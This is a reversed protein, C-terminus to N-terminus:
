KARLLTISGTRRKSEDGILQYQFVYFYTGSLCEEKTNFKRGNWLYDFETSKFVLEGWRNYVLLNYKTHGKILIKFKDNYGDENVTIVNPIWVNTEIQLWKCLTDACGKENRAVLCIQKTGPSDFEHVVDDLNNTIAVKDDFYWEFDVGAKSLNKFWFVPTDLKSSDLEFNAKIGIVEVESFATDPCRAGSGTYFLNYTELSDYSHFLIPNDTKVTDTRDGFYVEYNDYSDDSESFDFEGVANICLVSDHILEIKEKPLVRVKIECEKIPYNDVCFLKKGSFDVISDGAYLSICYLGPSNYNLDVFKEGFSPKTRGDGLHWEWVTSKESTDKVTTKFPVCGVSDGVLSFKPLPGEIYVKIEASDVCGEGKTVFHTGLYTKLWVSYEGNHKYLHGTTGKDLKSRLADEGDGWDWQWYQIYDLGATGSSGDLIESEDKFVFLQPACFRVSDNKTVRFGTEIGVVKIYNERITTLWKCNMSDRTQMVVTYVGPKKYVWKPNSGYADFEGDNDFDWRIKEAFRPKIGFRKAIPDQWFLTTDVGETNNSALFSKYYQVTDIFEVSDGLCVTEHIVDFKARHGVAIEIEDIYECGFRHLVNATIKYVGPKTFKFYSKQALNNYSTDDQVGAVASHMTSTIKRLRGADNFSLYDLTDTGLEVWDDTMNLRFEYKFWVHKIGEQLTDVLQTTVTDGECFHFNSVNAFANASYVYKYNHYWATDFCPGNKVVIGVTKWGTTSYRYAAHNRPVKQSEIWDHRLVKKGNCLSFTTQEASDFVVWYKELQCAPLLESIDLTQRYDTCELGKVILGRRYNGGGLKNQTRYDMRNISDYAVRDWGADPAQVSIYVSDDSKCGTLPDRAWMKVKYCGETSYTHVPLRETSFRSFKNTNSLTSTDNNGEGFDWFYSLSDSAWPYSPNKCSDPYGPTFNDVAEFGRYKISNNIFNVTHPVTCAFLESDHLNEPIHKGIYERFVPGKPLPSGKKWIHEKRSIKNGLYTIASTPQLSYDYRTLMGKCKSAEGIAMSDLKSANCYSYRSMKVKQTDLTYYTISDFNCTDFYEPFSNPYFPHGILSDNYERPFKNIRAQAGYVKVMACYKTDRVCGKKEIRLRVTFKGPESYEHVPNFQDFASNSQSQPDGFTWVVRRFDPINSHTFRVIPGTQGWDYCTSDPTAKANFRFFINEINYRQFTTTCGIKNTVTISPNCIKNGTYVSPARNWKDDWDSDTIEAIQGNGNGFDWEVKQIHFGTTDTRNRFVVETQPCSDRQFKFFDPKIEEYMFYEIRKSVTDKCGNEDLVELVVRYDKNNEYSYRFSKRNSTDGDGLDWTYRLIKANDAGETSAQDFKISPNYWCTKYADQMAIVAKPNDYIKIDSRYIANCTSNDTYSIQASVTYTGRSQFVHTPRLETSSIGDGFNWTVSKVTKGTQKEISFSIPFPVCGIYDSADISCQAKSVIPDFVILFILLVISVIQSYHTRM